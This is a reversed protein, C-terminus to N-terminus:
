CPLGYEDYGLIQDAPRPDLEPMDDVRRLIEEIQLILVSVSRAPQDSNM